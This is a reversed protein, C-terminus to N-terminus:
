EFIANNKVHCSMLELKRTRCNYKSGVVRETTHAWLLLTGKWCLLFTVQGGYVTGTMKGLLGDIELIISMLVLLYRSSCIMPKQPLYRGPTYCNRPWPCTLLSLAAKTSVHGSSVREINVQPRQEAFAECALAVRRAPVRVFARLNQIRPPGM